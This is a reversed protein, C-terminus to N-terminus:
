EYIWIDEVAAQLEIMFMKIERLRARRFVAMYGEKGNDFLVLQSIFIMLLTLDKLFEIDKKIRNLKMFAKSVEWPM